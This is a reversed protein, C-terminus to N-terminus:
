NPSLAVPSGLPNVPAGAQFAPTHVPFNKTLLLRISERVDGLAPSTIPYNKGNFFPPITGFFYRHHKICVNKWMVILKLFGVHFTHTLNVSTWNSKKGIGSEGVIRLNRV